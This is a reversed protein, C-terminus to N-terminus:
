LRFSRRHSFRFGVDDYGIGCRKKADADFTREFVTVPYAHCVFGYVAFFGDFFCSAKMGVDEDQAVIDRYKVATLYEMLQVEHVARRAYKEDAGGLPAFPASGEAESGIAVEGSICVGSLKEVGDRADCVSFTDEGVVFYRGDDCRVLALFREADSFEFDKFADRLAHGILGDGFFQEDTFFRDFIMERADEALHVDGVTGLRCEGGDFLVPDYEFLLM